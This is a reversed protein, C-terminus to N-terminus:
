ILLFGNREFDPKRVLADTTGVFCGPCSTNFLISVHDNDAFLDTWIAFSAIHYTLCVLLESLTWSRM